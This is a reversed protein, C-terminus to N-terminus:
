PLSYVHALDDIRTSKVGCSGCKYNGGLQCGREFSAAPHDGTYFKMCDCIPINNSSYVPDSLTNLCDLRDGISALQDDLSSSSVCFMYLEPEEVYDEIKFPLCENFMGNYEATTFFVAPDFLCHITMLLYGRGLIVSHDHWLALNRTRQFAKLTSSPNDKVTENISDLLVKVDAADISDIEDDTQLRMFKAHKELLKKRIEMLSIKRGCVEQMVNTIEGDVVSSKILTYPTCAEGLSLTGKELFDNISAKLAHVTPLSPISIENGPLKAKSRRLRNTNEPIM